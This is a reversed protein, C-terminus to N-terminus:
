KKAESPFIANALIGLNEKEKKEHDTEAKPAAAPLPEGTVQRLLTQM